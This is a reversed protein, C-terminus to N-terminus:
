KYKIGIFDLIKAMGLGKDPIWKGNENYKGGRICYDWLQPHTEKLRQFRNPEKELHCGFGCFICGTRQCGSFYLTGNKNEMIKGYVPCIPLNNIHIYKLIDQETWFSLPKSSPKKNFSNCGSKLWNKTRFLSETALTGIYPKLKNTKEFCHFPSKKMIDCCKDTINFPANLLFLWKKCNFISKNGQKDIMEGNLKKWRTNGPKALSVTNAVNKSIIPYGYKTLVEVFTMKPKLWEVNDYTKVFERIEPYELGTDCFVAKVDPYVKRVLDLLVTSDKGGSFSVYVQGGGLKTGNLLGLM